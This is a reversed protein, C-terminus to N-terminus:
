IPIGGRPTIIDALLLMRARRADELRTLYDRVPQYGTHPELRRRLEGLQDVVRISSLAPSTSLLEHGVSVAADLDM